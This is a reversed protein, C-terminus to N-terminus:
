INWKLNITGHGRSECEGASFVEAYVGSTGGEIEDITKGKGQGSASFFKYVTNM